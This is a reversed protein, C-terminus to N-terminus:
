ESKKFQEQVPGAPPAQEQEPPALMEPPPPNYKPDQLEAEIQEDMEEYEEDSQRLIHRRIWEHSVYKGAYDDADRVRNFREMLIESEKLESFYNDHLYRFRLKYKIQEWEDPTLLGKMILQTELADLFLENFKLRLRDIFKAFKIEDRNIETARGVNYVTEPELRSIPVNLSKYLKRQFYKVDEMEGLNQGSPLTSIETGRGGERRPLWFDELMTMFRRDDRIEGTAANYVLRNKYKTMMDKLYQEAKAKPLSGVDIYFVRREPARTIRYIVTADELARLQNLPRIAKHLHSLVMKNASDMLGSTCYLISDKAIKIANRTNNDQPFNSFNKQGANFGQESYVFYEKSKKILSIDQGDTKSSPKKWNERVKRIKRPDIYRLEQIGLDPRNKDVIKHYYLRGDRYWTRFVEYAKTDFELLRKINDFEEVIMKNLKPNEGLTEDLKDFIIQVTERDEEVVIAENTIEDIAQDIEPNGAMDRYRTVLQAETRITGDLDIYQGYAGGVALNIAGEDNQKEVFTPIENQDSARKIEFGFLRM